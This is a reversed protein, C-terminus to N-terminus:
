AVQYYKDFHFESISINLYKNFFILKKWFCLKESPLSSSWSHIFWYCMKFCDKFASTTQLLAIWPHLKLSMQIESIKHRCVERPLRNWKKITRLMFFNGQSVRKLGMAEQEGHVVAFLKSRDDWYGGRPSNYPGGSAAEDRSQVQGTGETEEASWDWCDQQDKASNM